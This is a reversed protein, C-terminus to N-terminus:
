LPIYAEVPQGLLRMIGLEDVADLIANHTERYAHDGTLLRLICEVNYDRRLRGSRCCEADAPICRNFQRYAALRMIDYWRFDKLEPLHSRDFCANYAFLAEVGQGRLWDTLEALADARCRSVPPTPTDLYLVHAYMGGLACEAPLVLYRMDIPTFTRADAIVAGISMVAGARNTETDIVAIKEM